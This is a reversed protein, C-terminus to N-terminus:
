VPLRAPQILRSEFGDQEVANGVQIELVGQLFDAGAVHEQDDVGAM